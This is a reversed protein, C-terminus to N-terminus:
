PKPWSEALFSLHKHFLLISIFGKCCILGFPPVVRHQDRDIVIVPTYLEARAM